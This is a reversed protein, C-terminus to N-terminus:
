GAIAAGRAPRGAVAAHVAHAEFAPAHALRAAGEATAGAREDARAVSDTGARGAAADSLRGAGAAAARRAGAEAGVAHADSHPGAAPLAGAAVAVGVSRAAHAAVGAAAEGL